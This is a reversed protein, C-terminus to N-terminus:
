PPLITVCVQTLIMVQHANRMDVVGYGPEASIEATDDIAEADSSWGDEVEGHTVTETVFTALNPGRRDPGAQIEASAQQATAREMETDAAAERDTEQQREAEEDEETLDTNLSLLKRGGPCYEAFFTDLHEKRQRRLQNMGPFFGPKLSRLKNIDRQAIGATQIAFALRTPRAKADIHRRIVEFLKPNDLLRTIWGKDFIRQQMQTALGSVGLSREMESLLWTHVGAQGGLVECLLLYLGHATNRKRRATSAGGSASPTSEFEKARTGRARVMQDAEAASSPTQELVRAIRAYLGLKEAQNEFVQALALVDEPTTLCGDHALTALGFGRGEKERLPSTDHFPKNALLSLASHTITTNKGVALSPDAPVDGEPVRLERRQDLLSQIPPLSERRLVHGAAGRHTFHDLRFGHAKLHPFTAGPSPPRSYPGYPTSMRVPFSPRLTLSPWALPSPASLPMAEGRALPSNSAGVALNFPYACASVPPGLFRPLSSLSPPPSPAAGEDASSASYNSSASAPRKSPRVQGATAPRKPPNRPRGVSGPRYNSSGLWAPLQIPADGMAHLNPAHYLSLHSFRAASDTFYNIFEIFQIM